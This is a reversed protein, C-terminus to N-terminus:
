KTLILRGAKTIKLRYMAGEHAIIIERDGQFLEEALYVQPLAENLRSLSDSPRPKESKNEPDSM